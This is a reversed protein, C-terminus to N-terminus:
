SMGADIPRLRAAFQLESRTITRVLPAHVDLPWVLASTTAHAADCLALWAEPSFYRGTVHVGYPRNGVLDMGVLMLRSRPGFCFHDKVVVGQRSVRLAERLLQLPDTAHHLVDSLLAVDFTADDFPLTRGDYATVDIAADPQVLVDVGRISAGLLNAIELGLAGHGAGIDLLQQAPRALEALTSALRRTRPRQIFRRHAARGVSLPSIM